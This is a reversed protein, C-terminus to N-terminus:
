MCMYMCRVRARDRQPLRRARRPLPSAPGPSHPPPEPLPAGGSATHQLLGSESQAGAMSMTLGDSALLPLSRSRPLVPSVRGAAEARMPARTESGADGGASLPPASRSRPVLLVHIDLGGRSQDHAQALADLDSDGGALLAPHVMRVWAVASESDLEVVGVLYGLVLAGMHGAGGTGSQVAVPGSAAGSVALLRDLALLLHPSAPDLRLDELEIGSRAFAARDYSCDHLCV